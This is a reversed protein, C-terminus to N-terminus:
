SARRSAENAAVLSVARRLEGPTWGLLDALAALQGVTPIREDREWASVATQSVSWGDPALEVLRIQSLGATMRCARLYKGFTDIMVVEV